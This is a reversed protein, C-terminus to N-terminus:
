PRPRSRWLTILVVLMPGLLAITPMVWTPPDLAAIM